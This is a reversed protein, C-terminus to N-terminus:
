ALATQSSESLAGAGGLQRNDRLLCFARAAEADAKGMPGENASASPEADMPQDSQPGSEAAQASDQTESCVRRQTDQGLLPYLWSLRIHQKRAGSDGQQGGAEPQPPGIADTPNQDSSPEPWIEWLTEHASRGPRFGFSFEKFEQEYIPELLMTIARQLVKDESGDQTERRCNGLGPV